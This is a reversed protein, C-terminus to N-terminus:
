WSSISIYNFEITNVLSEVKGLLHRLYLQFITQKSGKPAGSNMGTKLPEEIKLKIHINQLDNNTGKYKKKQGNHQRNNTSNRIRIVREELLHNVIEIVV